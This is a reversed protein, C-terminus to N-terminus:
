GNRRDDDDAKEKLKERKDPVIQQKFIPLELAKAASSRKKLGKKRAM